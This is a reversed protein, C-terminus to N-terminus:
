SNQPLTPIGTRQGGAVVGELFQDVIRMEGLPILDQKGDAPERCLQPLVTAPMPIIRLSVDEKILIAYLDLENVEVPDTPALM